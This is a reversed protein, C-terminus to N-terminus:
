ILHKYLIVTAHLEGSASRAYDPIAGAATYGLKRYLRESPDGARTDLVLLTRGDRFAVRAAEEMLAEGIGRRRASRHVMLKIVEARHSGNARAAYDLQVTGVIRDDDRAILLVRHPTSLADFVERWYKEAEGPALPPLFGISAGGDVADELLHVLDVLHTPATAATLREIEM